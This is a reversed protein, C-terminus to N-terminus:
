TSKKMKDMERRLKEEISSHMDQRKKELDAKITEVKKDMDKKKAMFEELERALKNEDKVERPLKEIDLYNAITLKISFPDESMEIIGLKELSRCTPLGAEVSISITSCVEEITPPSQKQHHVIRIAAVFLHAENYPDM